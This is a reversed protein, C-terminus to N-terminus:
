WYRGGHRSRQRQIHQSWAASRDRIFNTLEASSAPVPDPEAEYHGKENRVPLAAVRAAQLRDLRSPTSAKPHHPSAVPVAVKALPDDDRLKDLTLVDYTIVLPTSRWARGSRVAYYTDHILQEGAAVDHNPRQSNGTADWSPDLFTFAPLKESAALAQFDRFHGFHSESREV